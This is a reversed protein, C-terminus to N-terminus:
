CFQFYYVLLSGFFFFSNEDALRLILLVFPSGLFNNVTYTYVSKNTTKHWHSHPKEVCVCVCARRSKELLKLTLGFTLPAYLYGVCIEKPQWSKHSQQQQQQQPMTNGIILNTTVKHFNSPRIGPQPFECTRRALIREITSLRSGNGMVQRPILISPLPPTPLQPAYEVAYLKDAARM